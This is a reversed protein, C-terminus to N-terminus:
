ALSAPMFRGSGRGRPRDAHRNSHSRHPSSGYHCKFPNVCNRRCSYGGDIPIAAGTIFDSAPAGFVLSAQSITLSFGMAPRTRALVQRLAKSKSWAGQTLTPISGAPCFQTSRSITKRGPSRWRDGLQSLARKGCPAYPCSGCVSVDDIGCQHDQRRRSEGHTSLGGALLFIRQHSQHEHSLALGRRYLGATTKARQHRRQQGFHRSPWVTRRSTKDGCSM